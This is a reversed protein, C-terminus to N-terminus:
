FSGLAHSELMAAVIKRHRMRRVPVGNHWRRVTTPDAGLHKALDDISWGHRRRIVNLKDPLTQPEPFPEYSLFALVSPWHRISIDHRGLEWNAVTDTTVGCLAAVHKQCLGLDLRRQLIHGGVTRLRSEKEELATRSATLAINRFPLSVM